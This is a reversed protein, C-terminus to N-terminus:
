PASQRLASQLGSVWQQTAKEMMLPYGDFEDGWNYYLGMTKKWEEKFPDSRWVIRGDVTQLELSVELYNTTYGAPLGILWLNPGYVSLGYSIIGGSYRMDVVRGRLIYDIDPERERETYFVEKFLNAKKLEGVVAKALDESPRIQYSAHTLYASGSELQDYSMPGIPVGPILYIFTSSSNDTGRLDEFPLVAVRM